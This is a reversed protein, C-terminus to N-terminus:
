GTRWARGINWTVGAYIARPQLGALPAIVGADLVISPRVAFTPGGLLAVVSDGAVAGIGPFGFVEACWGARGRASGGFSATWVAGNRPAVRGNGSRRTYGANLDISVGHITRSSIVLLGVDTTGTGTGRAPSGTPFKISPLVAFDGVLPSDETLRWKIGASFDGTGSGAGGPAWVGYGQLSLQVRPALGLKLLIPLSGGHVRDGYRDREVGAELEAWGPAVTGAHTAVTPREPQAAHPDSPAQAAARAAGCVAVLVAIALRM